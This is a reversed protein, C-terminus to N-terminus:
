KKAKKIAFYSVSLILVIVPLIIVSWSLHHFSEVVSTISLVILTIIISEWLLFKLGAFDNIDLWKPLDIKSEEEYVFLKYVGISFIIFVISILFSDLAEALLIGPKVPESTAISEVVGIYADVSKIVGSIIFIVSNIFTVLIIIRFLTKLSFIKRFM